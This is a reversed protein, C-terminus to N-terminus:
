KKGGCCGGRRIKIFPKFKQNQNSNPNQKTINIIKKIISRM